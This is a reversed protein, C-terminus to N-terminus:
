KTHETMAWYWTFFCLWSRIYTTPTFRLILFLPQHMNDIYLYELWQCVKHPVNECLICLHTNLIICGQIVFRQIIRVAVYAFCFNVLCKYWVAGKVQCHWFGWNKAGWSFHSKCRELTWGMYDSWVEVCLCTFVDCMFKDHPDSWNWDVPLRLFLLKTTKSKLFVICAKEWEGRPWPAIAVFRSGTM